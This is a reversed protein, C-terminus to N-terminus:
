KPRSVGHLCGDKDVYQLYENGNPRAYVTSGDPYYLLTGGNIMIDGGAPVSNIQPPGVGGLGHQQMYQLWPPVTEQIQQAQVAAQVNANQAVQQAAAGPQQVQNAPIVDQIIQSNQQNTPPNNGAFAGSTGLVLAAIGVICSLLKTKNLKSKLM